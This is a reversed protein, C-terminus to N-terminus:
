CAAACERLLRVIDDVTAKGAEVDVVREVGAFSRLAEVHAFATPICDLYFCASIIAGVTSTGRVSGGPTQARQDRAPAHHAYLHTKCLGRQELLEAAKGFVAPNVNVRCSSRGAEGGAGGAKVKRPDRGGGGMFADMAEKFEHYPRSGRGTNCPVCALVLNELVYRGGTLGPMVRDRSPPRAASFWCGCYHCRNGDRALLSLTQGKARYQVVVGDTPCTM